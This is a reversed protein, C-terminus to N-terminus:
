RLLRDYKLMKFMTLSFLTLTVLICRIAYNLCVIRLTWTFINLIAVSGKKDPTVESPCFLLLFCPMALQLNGVNIM